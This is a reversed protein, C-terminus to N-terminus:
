SLDELSADGDMMEPITYVISGSRRVRMEAFGRSVLADLEKKARELSVNAALAVDSSTLVGKSQKALKLIVREVTERKDEDGEGVIRAEADHAYRWADQPSHHYLPDGRSKGYLLEARINAEQVQRSLTFFDYISGLMGLGGTCLWLLGTFKKGLYFRHLGLCGCGSLFWLLYAIFGSYM